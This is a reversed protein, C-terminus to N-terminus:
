SNGRHNRNDLSARRRDQEDKHEQVFNQKKRGGKKKKQKFQSMDVRYCEGCRIVGKDDTHTERCIGDCRAEYLTGCACFDVDALVKLRLRKQEKKRQRKGSSNHNSNPM